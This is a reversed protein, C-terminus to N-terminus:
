KGIVMWDVTGSTSGEVYCTIKGNTGGYIGIKLSSNSGSERKSYISSLAVPLTIEQAQPDATIMFSGWQVITGNPLKFYGPQAKSETIDTDSILRHWDTITFADGINARYM